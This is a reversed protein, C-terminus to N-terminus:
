KFNVVQCELRTVGYNQSITKKITFNQLLKKNYNKCM